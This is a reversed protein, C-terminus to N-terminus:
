ESYNIIGGGLLVEGRYFAAAQGPAVSHEPDLLEVIACQGDLLNVICSSQQKRYRIKCVVPSNDLFDSQSIYHVNKLYIRTKYMNQLPALIVRNNAQDLEKVYMPRNLNLGLGRRQGVTYFPYGKHKGLIKGQEDEFFGPLIKGSQVNEKLFLRYNGKCFCIGLSDKRISIRELGATRVLERVEAKYMNGLPFIARRLIENGLGWLFFSQDKDKDTGTHIYIKGEIEVSQVYHGTAIYFIDLEDAIKVLLPWKFTNNCRICPVPTRASMYERIFYLVIHHKFGERVDYVFHRINLKRATEVADDLYSTDGDADFFRFTVGIVEFGQKQLLVAAGASDTGGSMGLLVRKKDM